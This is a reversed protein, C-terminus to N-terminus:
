EFLFFLSFFDGGGNRICVYPFRWVNGLGVCYGVMSLIYESKSGWGHRTQKENGDESSTYSTYSVDDRKANRKNDPIGSPSTTPVYVTSDPGNKYGVFPVTDGQKTCHVSSM